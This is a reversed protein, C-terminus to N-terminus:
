PRPIDAPITNNLIGTAFKDKQSEIMAEDYEKKYGGLATTFRMNSVPDEVYVVEADEPDTTRKMVLRDKIVERAEDRLKYSQRRLSKLPTDVGFDAMEQTNLNRMTDMTVVIARYRKVKDDEPKPLASLVQQAIQLKEPSVGERKKADIIEKARSYPETNTM